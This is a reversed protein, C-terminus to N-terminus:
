GVSTGRSPRTWAPGPLAQRASSLSRGGVDIGIRDLECAISVRAVDDIAHLHTPSAEQARRAAGDRVGLDIGSGRLRLAREALEAGRMRPDREASAQAGRFPGEPFPAPNLAEWSLLVMYSVVVSIGMATRDLDTVNAIVLM